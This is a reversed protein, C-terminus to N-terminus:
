SKKQKTIIYNIKIEKENEVRKELEEDIEWQYKKPKPGENKYFIATIVGAVLGALHGEWSVGNKLPFVGWILSGYLFIIIMSLAALRPNKRVLGSVFLFAALSYIIGSAGIHYSERGIIWLWFGSIFFLWMFIKLAISRYASFLLSGLILIPYSNNFLHTFDKHIFPSFLIGKLSNIDKPYIGFKVFSLNFQIEVIKVGWMILLFIFPIIFVYFFDKTEKKNVNM